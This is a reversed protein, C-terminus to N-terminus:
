AKSLLMPIDLPSVVQVDKAMAWGEQVPAMVYAKHVGIDECAQWFGKSVKPASSFKIEFGTTERGTEVVVDLEAGAATRYFSVSAGTPLHNCIQEICFGEWSAGTNPHGMLDHVNRMGLLYHLLGSDRVYIKPSKVLRKGLNAHYPELRRLMLSQVLHDLYRTVTPSSVGLSAAISSANFLQGHLHAVMRWFRRMLEPEVNIGLAPLDTHLFHRVFADRWLWSADNQPTTYSGPFGGRVWLTQIDEFSQHVESLLLPAMDVLALRGALSQSQQLLKFSASGLILFRGPRRDADIEGRMTSFLDPANQIEDLVVLRHRNAEFFVDAQDLKARAQANELDLYISDPFEAAIQKALTTKGIQRAGLIAVAPSLGLQHRIEFASKRQFM